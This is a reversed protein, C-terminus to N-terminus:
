PADHSILESLAKEVLCPLEDAPITAIGALTHNQSLSGVVQWGTYYAERELGTTGEGMTFRYVTESEDNGLFPLIGQLIAKERQQCRGFWDEDGVYEYAARNPVLAATCRTALGEEIILQAISREWGGSLGAASMHVAHTFEHPLVLERKEASQEVPLCVVYQGEHSYAFANDEFGGVFIVLQVDVNHHNLLDCVSSLAAEPSPKIANAGQRILDLHQGYTNWANALLQKALERGEPTPPVAAFNYHKQWLDWREEPDVAQKARDYFSLFKPTLDVVSINPM